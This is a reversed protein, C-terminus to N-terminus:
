GIILSYKGYEGVALKSLLEFPPGAYKLV